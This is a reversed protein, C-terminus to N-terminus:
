WFVNGKVMLTKMTNIKIEIDNQRNLTIKKLALIQPYVPTCSGNDALHRVETPEAAPRSENALNEIKKASRPRSCCNFM